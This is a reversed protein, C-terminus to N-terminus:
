RRRIDDGEFYCLTFNNGLLRSTIREDYTNKLDGPRLNTVVITRRPYRGNYEARSDLISIMDAYKAPSPVETGLDDICLVPANYIKDATMAEVSETDDRHMRHNLLCDFLQPATRYICMTGASLLESCITKAMYSKGTGTAGMFLLNGPETASDSDVFTRCKSLISAINDRPSLETISDSMIKDSFLSLDYDDFTTFNCPHIGTVEAYLQNEIEIACSCKHYQNDVTIFGTDNCRRCYYRPQDYDGPIHQEDLYADRHSILTNLEDDKQVALSKSDQLLARAISLRCLKIETDLEQVEPYEAYIRSRRDAAEAEASLRRNSLTERILSSIEQRTM